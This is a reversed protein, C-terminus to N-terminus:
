NNYRFKKMSDKKTSRKSQNNSESGTNRNQQASNSWTNGVETQDSDITADIVDESVSDEELEEEIEELEMLEKEDEELDEDTDVIAIRNKPKLISKKLSVEQMVKETEDKIMEDALEEDIRDAKNYKSQNLGFGVVVIFVTLTLINIILLKKNNM